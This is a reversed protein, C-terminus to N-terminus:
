TAATIGGEDLISLWAVDQKREACVGDVIRLSSAAEFSVVLTFFVNPHQALGQMTRLTLALDEGLQGRGFTAPLCLAGPVAAAIHRALPNVNDAAAMVVVLNRIGKKGDKRQYGTFPLTRWLTDLAPGNSQQIM